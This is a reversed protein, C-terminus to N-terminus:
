NQKVIDASSIIDSPRGDDTMTTPLVRKKRRGDLWIPPSTAKWWIEVGNQELFKFKQINLKFKLNANACSGTPIFVGFVSGFLKSEKEVM